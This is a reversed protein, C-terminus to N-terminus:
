VQLGFLTPTLAPHGAHHQAGFLELVLSNWYDLCVQESTLLCFSDTELADVSFMRGNQYIIYIYQFRFSCTDVSFHILLQLECVKFVETDDVYSISILYGLGALLLSINEPASELIKIHLQM